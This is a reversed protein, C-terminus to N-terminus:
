PAGAPQVPWFTAAFPKRVRDPASSRTFTVEILTSEVGQGFQYLKQGSGSFYLSFVALSVLRRRKDQRTPSRAESHPPGDMPRPALWGPRPLAQEESELLSLRLVM